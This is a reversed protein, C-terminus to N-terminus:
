QFYSSVIRKIIDAISTNEKQALQSLKLHIDVEERKWVIDARRTEELAVHTYKEPFAWFCTKCIDKDHIKKWNECNECSWSKARQSSADLLMFDDINFETTNGSVEYPIRHDIQLYRSDLKERTINDLSGYKSLLQEKFAKSFVKRGGVRGRKIEDPNAFKYAAIVRGTRDSKVKFTELPIGNERVDRAARPPHDYGLNQLDETTIFGYKIIHDLVTKARKAKVTKCLDLIRQDITM